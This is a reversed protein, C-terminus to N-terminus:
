KIEKFMDARRWCESAKIRPLDKPEHKCFVIKSDTIQKSLAPPM